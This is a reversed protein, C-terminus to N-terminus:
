AKIRNCTIKIPTIFPFVNPIVHVIHLYKLSCYLIWWGLYILSFTWDTRLYYQSLFRQDLHFSIQFSNWIKNLHDTVLSSSIFSHPKSQKINSFIINKIKNSTNLIHVLSSVDYSHSFFSYIFPLFLEYFFEKLSNFFSFQNFKINLIIHCIFPFKQHM